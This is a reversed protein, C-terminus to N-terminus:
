RRPSVRLRRFLPVLRTCPLRFSHRPYRPASISLTFPHFTSSSTTSSSSFFPRPPPSNERAHFLTARSSIFPADVANFCQKRPSKGDARPNIRPGLLESLFPPGDLHCIARQEGRGSTWEVPRAKKGEPSAVGFFNDAPILPSSTVGPQLPSIRQSHLFARFRPFVYKSIIPVISAELAFTRIWPQKLFDRFSKNIECFFFFFFNYLM